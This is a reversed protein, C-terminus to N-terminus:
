GPTPRSGPLSLKHGNKYYWEHKIKGTGTEYVIIAAQKDRHLKGHQWYEERKIQGTDPNFSIRAPKDGDRHVLGNVVYSLSEIIGTEPDVHTTAPKDGDRHHIGNVYWDEGWFIGDLETFYCIAPGFDRHPKGDKLWTERTRHGTEICIDVRVTYEESRWEEEPDM